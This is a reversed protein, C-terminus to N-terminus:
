KEALAQCSIAAAPKFGTVVGVHDEKVWGFDLVVRVIVPGVLIGGSHHVDEYIACLHEFITLM